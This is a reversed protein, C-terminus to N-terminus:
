KKMTPMQRSYRKAVKARVASQVRPSAHEGAMSLAARAHNKDNIPYSRGPGAFASDPLANREKTSLRAM